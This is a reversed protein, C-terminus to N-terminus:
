IIPVIVLRESISDNIIHVDIGYVEKIVDEKLVKEPTGITHIRGNNMLIIYDSYAIAINLDHLVAIVTKQEKQNILKIQNLI